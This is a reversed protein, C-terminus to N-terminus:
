SALSEMTAGKRLALRIMEVRSMVQSGYRWHTGVADAQGAESCRAVPALRRLHSAALEHDLHAFRLEDVRDAIIQQRAPLRHGQRKLKQNMARFEVPCWALLRDSMLQARKRVIEPAYALRFNAKGHDHGIQRLKAAEIPDELRRAAALICAKRHRHQVVPDSFTAKILPAKKAQIAPDAALKRCLEQKQRLREPNDALGKRLGASHAAKREPTRCVCRPCHKGPTKAICASPTDCYPRLEVSASALEEADLHVTM